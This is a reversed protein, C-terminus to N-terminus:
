KEAGAKIPCRWKATEIQRLDNITLWTSPTSAHLETAEITNAVSVSAGCLEVVSRGSSRDPVQDFTNPEFECRFLMAFGVGFRGGFHEFSVKVGGPVLDSWSPGSGSFNDGAAM